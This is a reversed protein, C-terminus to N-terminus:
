SNSRGFGGQEDPLIKQGHSRIHRANEAELRQRMPLGSPIGCRLQSAAVPVTQHRLRM